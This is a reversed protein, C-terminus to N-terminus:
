DPKLHSALGAPYLEVGDPLAHPAFWRATWVSQDHEVLVIEPRGYFSEDLLRINAAFLFEHGQAGEHLFLNEFAMWPGEIVIGCGLEEMFERELAQERTEGFEISGGPPRIGKVTGDDRTVQAALLRGENWVLGLVKVPIRQPPRWTQEGSTQM